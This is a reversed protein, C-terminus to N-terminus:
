ESELLVYGSPTTITGPITAASLGERRLTAQFRERLRELNARRDEEQEIQRLSAVLSRHTALHKNDIRDM